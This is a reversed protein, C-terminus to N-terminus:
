KQNGNCGLRDILDYRFITLGNDIGYSHMYIHVNNLEIYLLIHCKFMICMLALGSM